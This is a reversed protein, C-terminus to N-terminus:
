GGPKEGGEDDGYKEGTCAIEYVQKRSLGYKSAVQRLAEARSLGAQRAAAIEARLTARSPRGGPDQNRVVPEEAGNRAKPTALSEIVLTIEGRIERKEWQKALETLPGIAVEEHVKTLERGIAARREGMVAALERLTAALRHPAEFLVIAREERGLQALRDRRAKGSRPLFGEFCWRDAVLGSGVLATTAASPGPLVTVPLAAERAAAVLERGPDSIGPMGADTVLAVRRGSQLHALLQALRQRWNHSHYSLLPASIAYHQLLKRTQRTDEAAILDVERLVRLVRLSIDELNGIPTACVYLM